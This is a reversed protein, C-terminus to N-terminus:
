RKETSQANKLCKLVTSLPFGATEQRHTSCVCGLINLLWSKDSGCEKEFSFTVCSTVAFRASLTTRYEFDTKIFLSVHFSVTCLDTYLFEVGFSM